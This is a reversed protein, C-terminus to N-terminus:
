ADPHSNRFDRLSDDLFQHTVWFNTTKIREYADALDVLGKAAARELVGITGIFALNRTRAASRGKKEDILLLEANLERALSIAACEGEDLGAVHEIEAPMQIRLWAPKSRAFDQVARPRQPQRLEDMVAPPVYVEGFLAPLIETEGIKVLVIFPSSDSVVIM